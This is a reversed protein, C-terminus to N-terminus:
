HHSRFVVRLLSRGALVDPSGAPKDPEVERVLFTRLHRPAQSLVGSMKRRQAGPWKGTQGVVIRRWQIEIWLQRTVCRDRCYFAAVM